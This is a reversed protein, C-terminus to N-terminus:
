FNPCGFACSPSKCTDYETPLREKLKCTARNAKVVEGLTPKYKTLVPEWIALARRLEDITALMRKKSDAGDNACGAASQIAGTFRDLTRQNHLLAAGERKLTEEESSSIEPLDNCLGGGSSHSPLLKWSTHMKRLHRCACTEDDQVAHRPDSKTAAPPPAFFAKAEQCSSPPEWNGVSMWDVAQEGPYRGVLLRWALVRGTPSQATRRACALDDRDSKGDLLVAVETVASEVLVSPDDESAETMKDKLAKAEAETMPLDLHFSTLAQVDDGQPGSCGAGALAGRSAPYPGPWTPLLEDLVVRNGATVSRGEAPVASVPFVKRDFNYSGVSVRFSKRVPCSTLLSAARENDSRCAAMAKSTADRREFEDNAKINALSPCAKESTDGALHAAVRKEWDSSLTVLFEPHERLVDAAPRGAGSPTAPAAADGPPLSSGDSACGSCDPPGQSSPKKCGLPVWLLTFVAGIWLLDRIRLGYMQYMMM